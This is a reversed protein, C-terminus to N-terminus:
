VVRFLTRSVAVLLSRDPSSFHLDSDNCLIFQLPLGVPAFRFDSGGGWEITGDLLSQKILTQLDGLPVIRDEPSRQGRLDREFVFGYKVEVITTGRDRLLHVIANLISPWQSEDFVETIFEQM